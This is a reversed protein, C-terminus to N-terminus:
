NLVVCALYLDTVERKEGRIVISIKNGICPILGTSNDNNLCKAAIRALEEPNTIRRVPGHQSSKRKVRAM